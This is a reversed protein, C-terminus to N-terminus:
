LFITLSRYVLTFGRISLTKLHFHWSNEIWRAFLRFDLGDLLSIIQTDDNIFTYKGSLIEPLLKETDSTTTGSYFPPNTEFAKRLVNMTPDDSNAIDDELAYGKKTFSIITDGAAVSYIIAYVYNSRKAGSWCIRWTMATM